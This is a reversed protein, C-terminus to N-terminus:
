SSSKASCMSFGNAPAGRLAADHAELAPGSEDGPTRTTDAKGDRARQTAVACPHDRDALGFVLDLRKAPLEGFIWKGRDLHGVHAVGVRQFRHAVPKGTEVDEDRVGADVRADLRELELILRQPLHDM